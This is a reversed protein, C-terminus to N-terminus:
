AVMDDGGIERHWLRHAPRALGVRRRGLMEKGGAIRRAKAAREIEDALLVLFVRRLGRDCRRDRDARAFAAAEADRDFHADLILAQRLAIERREDFFRMLLDTGVAM